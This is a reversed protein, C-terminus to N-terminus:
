FATSVGISFTDYYFTYSELRNAGPSGLHFKAAADIALKGSRFGLGATVFDRAWGQGAYPQTDFIYGARLALTGALRGLMVRRAYEGGANLKVIDCRSLPYLRYVSTEAYDGIRDWGWYSADATFTLGGLPSFAAGAIVVLPQRFTEEGKDESVSGERSTLLLDHEIRVSVPPRMALHLFLRESARYLLGFNFEFGSLDLRLDRYESEGELTYSSEYRSVGGYLRSVSVGLVLSPGLARVAALSLRKLRGSQEIATLHYPYLDLGPLSYDQAASWGGAFKWKGRSLVAGVAGVSTTDRYSVFSEALDTFDDQFTYSVRAGTGSASFFSGQVFGLAAPNLYVAEPGISGLVTEGMGTGRASYPGLTNWGGVPLLPYREEYYQGRLSAPAVCLVLAAAAFLRGVKATMGMMRGLGRGGLRDAM